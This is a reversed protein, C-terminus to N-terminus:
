QKKFLFREGPKMVLAQVGPALKSCDELFGAPDGNHEVFMWFYSLASPSNNTYHITEKGQLERRATDLTAAIRYDARQQWYSPGPRGAGTRYENPGPLALSRFVSPPVPMTDGGARAQAAASGQLAFSLVLVGLMLRAM